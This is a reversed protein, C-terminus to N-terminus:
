KLCIAKGFSQKYWLRLEREVDQLDDFDNWAVFLDFSSASGTHWCPRGGVAFCETADPERDPAYSFPTASHIEIGGASPFGKFVSRWMEIAGEESRLLHAKRTEDDYVEETTILITEM